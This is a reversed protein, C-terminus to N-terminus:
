DFYIFHKKEDGGEGRERNINMDWICKYISVLIAYCGLLFYVEFENILSMIM